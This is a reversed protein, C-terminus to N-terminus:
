RTELTINRFQLPSGESQLAIKGGTLTIDTGRNQLVGNVRVEIDGGSLIIDYSNWEGVPLESSAEYKPIVHYRQEESTILYTSDQVTMATGKGMLVLDGAHEHMLQCEICQPWIMPDGQVLVLVGSNTPEEVWRWEMHLKFNGYSEKTQLYGYPEGTTNLIGEEVYFLADPDLDPSGVFVTWNDLNNGNFLSLAQKPKCSNQLLLLTALAMFQLLMRM